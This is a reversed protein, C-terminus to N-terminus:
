SPPLPPPVAGLAEALEPLQGAAIWGSLGKKWVLTDCTLQGSQVMRNLEDREFPGTQQNNVAVFIRFQGPVPPPGAPASSGQTSLSGGLAAAMQGGVGIGMGMGVGAAALGGPNNAADRIASATEYQTYRQMDGIARIAGAKDIAKEVEEPLGIDQVQVETLELGLASIAPEIRGKLTEGLQVVRSELDIVPIGADPLVEKICTAIKGRLNDEISATSFNGDTGVIERVFLAPDKLRISYLGYATVRVAGFEADRMTVPGPTGWKLNTFQRTSCFYVEAKFPSSFGYKWGKLTTLAPMNRTELMYTGPKFVDALKGENIFVASQGERVVLQAGYKIENGYREFRYVLTTHTEDIWEVIDILEGKLKDLFSM